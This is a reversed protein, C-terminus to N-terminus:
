EPNIEQPAFVPLGMSDDDHINCYADIDYGYALKFGKMEPDPDYYAEIIVKNGEPIVKHIRRTMKGDPTILRFGTPVGDAALGGRVNDFSVEIVRAERNYKSPILRISKLAIADLTDKGFGCQHCAIRALRKGLIHQGTAAIHIGDDMALDIAPVVSLRSIKEPLKRQQERISLWGPNYLMDDIPFFKGIQVTMWPLDVLNFDKRVANVLNVMKDTYPEPEGTDSCGQYWLMGRIPQGLKIYRRLMAGYLSKGSKNKKEPSWQDMSTGGHGCCVLGQPIRTLEVMERGFALGPGVGKIREKKATKIEEIETIPKECHIPDVSTELMTLPEEAQGWQDWNYFANVLPHPEPADVVNGVGEMNSQGGLFWVDGVLVDNVTLTEEGALFIFDYPGGVSIDRIEMQWKDEKVVGANPDISVSLPNGNTDKVTVTVKEENHESISGSIFVSAKNDSDRQLVQMPMIGHDITLM